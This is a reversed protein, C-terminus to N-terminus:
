RSEMRKNAEDKARQIEAAIDVQGSPSLDEPRTLLYYGDRFWWKSEIAKGNTCRLREKERLIATRLHEVPDTIAAAVLRDLAHACDHRWQDVPVPSHWDSSLSDLVDSGWRGQELIHHALRMIRDRDIFAMRSVCEAITKPQDRRM